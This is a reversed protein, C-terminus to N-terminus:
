LSYCVQFKTEEITIFQANTTRHDPMYGIIPQWSGASYLHRGRSTLAAFNPQRGSSSHLATASRLCSVRQFKSPHGMSALLDWGSTHQLEGYQSCMHPLCQHKVLKKGITLVHRLQSSICYMYDSLTTHHHGSSSNTPIKPDQMELSGHAACKLGANWIRVLAFKSHLDSTTQISRCM